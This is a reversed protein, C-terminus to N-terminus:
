VTVTGSIGALFAFHDHVSSHKIEGNERRFDDRGEARYGPIRVSDTRERIIVDPHHEGGPCVLLRSQPDIELRFQARHFRKM